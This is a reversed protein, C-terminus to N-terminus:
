ASLEDGERNAACVDADEACHGEPPQVDELELQGERARNCGCARTARQVNPTGGSSGRALLYPSEDDREESRNAPTHRAFVGRSSHPAAM